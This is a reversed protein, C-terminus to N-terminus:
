YKKGIRSVRIEIFDSNLIIDYFIEIRKWGCIDRVLIDMGRDNVIKFKFVKIIM